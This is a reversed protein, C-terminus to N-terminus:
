SEPRLACIADALRAYDACSLTEGRAGPDLGARELAAQLVSTVAMNSHFAEKGGRLICASGAKFCLAAADVTVNPRAEYIIGIVGIPVRVRRLRLGNYLTREELVEGVPCALSVLKELGVAIGDIRKEHILDAIKEVLRAKNVQYPIETIVIRSKGGAM